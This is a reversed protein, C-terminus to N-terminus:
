SHNDTKEKFFVNKCFAERKDVESDRYFFIYVMSKERVGMNFEDICKTPKVKMVYNSDCCDFM